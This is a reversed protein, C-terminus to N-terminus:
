RGASPEGGGDDDSDDDGVLDDNRDIFYACSVRVKGPSGSVEESGAPPRLSYWEDSEIGPSLM